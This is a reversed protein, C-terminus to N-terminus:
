RSDLRARARSRFPGPALSRALWRVESYRHENYYKAGTRMDTTVVPFVAHIRVGADDSDKAGVAAGSGGHHSYSANVTAATVSATGGVLKATLLDIHVEGAVPPPAAVFSRGGFHGAVQLAGANDDDDDGGGGCVDTHSAHDGAFSDAEEEEGEEESESGHEEVEHSEDGASTDPSEDAKVEDEVEVEDAGTVGGEESEEPM